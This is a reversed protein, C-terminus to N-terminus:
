RAFASRAPRSRDGYCSAPRPTPTRRPATTTDPNPNSMAHEKRAPQTLRRAGPNPRDTRSRRSVPLPRRHPATRPGRRPHDAAPGQRAHLRRLVAPAGRRAARPGTRLARALIAVAAGRVGDAGGAAGRRGQVRHITSVTIRRDVEGATIEQAHLGAAHELFGTLTANEAQEAYTQAARCLSRLDELAREADRRQEPDPSSDRRRQHYAVLGGDLTVTAVVVHGISRGARLECRVRDLGEGFRTLRDRAAPSRISEIQAAHASAAILDGQHADRALAVVRNATAVGVGRKPSGVARRFAQADAPNALLALYALADKVESREYLGLSGLVRHPIGAQALAAQVPGTAYGTRALVLVETAPIGDALADAIAAAVWRAEDRDSGFAIM